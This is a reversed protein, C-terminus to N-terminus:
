QYFYQRNNDKKGLIANIAYGNGLTKGFIAIDPSMFKKHIGGLNERFGTTCEDFILVIKKKNCFTRIKKLFNNKPMEDRVVEMKIIGIKHKNIINKLNEFDNYKFSFITNKLSKPVGHPKLNNLLHNNLNSKNELNAALYWDHWGHYGCVAVKHNTCYARAIRIAVANAEGGSRTFRVKDAWRHLKLLKEALYVEEACNLTSLNSQNIKKRVLNDVKFNSYGLVNTGVGMLFLDTYKNGDLDWVYCGRAKQFHSPWKDKLIRDPNKSLLMNGGQIIKKSKSWINDTIKKSTKDNMFIQNNKMLNSNKKLFKIIESLKYNYRPYFNNIIKSIIKFDEQEDLTLRAFDFLNIKNTLNLKKFSRNYRAFSTVHEKDYAKLALKKNKKLM